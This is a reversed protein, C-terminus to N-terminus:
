AESRELRRLLPTPLALRATETPLAEPRRLWGAQNPAAKNGGPPGGGPAVAKGDKKPPIVGPAAGKLGGGKKGDGGYGGPGGPGGKGRPRGVRLGNEDDKILSSPDLVIKDGEKLGSKVEVDRENSLGIQIARKEPFGAENIVFVHRDAGSNITGIVSQIPVLLVPDKTEEAVITVEASMGPKLGTMKTDISVLTKYVKVDSSFWDQQSAVTDVVKVHGPLLQAPFADVKISAHQWSSKNEKDASHLHRVFAEPVRVNVMMKDLDPIQMMKQNERVPEGQAVISQQTGGGGRVQEPVYYVLLGDQPARVTCKAIESLIEMQRDLDQRYLSTKEKRVAEAQIM